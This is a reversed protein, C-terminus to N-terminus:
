HKIVNVKYRLFILLALIILVPILCGTGVSAKATANERSNDPVDPSENEDSESSFSGLIMSVEAETDFDTPGIIFQRYGRDTSYDWGGLWYSGQGYKSVITTDYEVIFYSYVIKGGINRSVLYAHHCLASFDPTQQFPFHLKLLSYTTDGITFSLMREAKFDEENCFDIDNVRERKCVSDLVKMCLSPFDSALEEYKANPFEEEGDLIFMSLFKHEVEYLAKMNECGKEM